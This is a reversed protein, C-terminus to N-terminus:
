KNVEEGRSTQRKWYEYLWKNNGSSKSYECIDRWEEVVKRLKADAFLKPEPHMVGMELLEIVMEAHSMSQLFMDGDGCILWNLSVDTAERIKQLTKSAPTRTGRECNSIYASRTNIRKAFEKQHLGLEKRLAKLRAGIQMDTQAETNDEM